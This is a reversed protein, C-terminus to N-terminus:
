RSPNHLGLPTVSLPLFFLSLQPHPIPVKSGFTCFNLNQPPCADGSPTPWLNISSKSNPRNKQALIIKTALRYFKKNPIEKCRVKQISKSPPAFGQLLAPPRQPVRYYLSLPLPALVIICNLITM